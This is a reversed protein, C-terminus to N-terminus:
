PIPTTMQHSRRPKRPHISIDPRRRAPPRRHRPHRRSRDALPLGCPRRAYAHARVPGQTRRRGRGPRLRCARRLCAPRPGGAPQGPGRARARFRAGPRVRRDRARKFTGNGIRGGHADAPPPKPSMPTRADPDTVFGNRRTVRDGPKATGVEPRATRLVDACDRLLPGAMRRYRRLREASGRGATRRLGQPVAGARTRGVDQPEVAQVRPHPQRRRGPGSRVAAPPRVPRRGFPNAAARDPFARGAGHAGIM